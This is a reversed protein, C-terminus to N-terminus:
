LLPPTPIRQMRRLLHRRGTENRCCDLAALYADRSEDLRELDFLLEARASHYWTYEGLEDRLDDADLLALGAEPGRALALAAAHNLRIVATPRTRLLDEYHGAIAEYNTRGTYFSKAHEAAIAAQSLYSDAGPRGQKQAARGLALFGARIKRRDWLRRDQDELLIPHGAADLRADRRSDTFLALALLAHNESDEPRLQVLMQMLRIAELCLDARILADGERSSYGENFILYLVTRVGELRDEIANAPPIAFPIGATEIKRKARVIRQAVTSEQVLFAAAIERTRLGGLTQLTLAVQSELNLTPHCCAFILSLREDPFDDEFLPSEPESFLSQDGQWQRYKRTGLSERRLSDITHRRATVYIWGAANEPIDATWRHLASLFAEQVAEEALELNQFERALAAVVRGYCEQYVRHITEHERLDM